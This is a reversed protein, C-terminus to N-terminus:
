FMINVQSVTGFAIVVQLLGTNKGTKLDGIAALGDHIIIPHVNNKLLAQNMLGSAEDFITDCIAALSLRVLGVLENEPIAKDWVEIMM